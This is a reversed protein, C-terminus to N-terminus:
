LIQISLSELGDMFEDKLLQNIMRQGQARSMEKLKSASIIINYRSDQKGDESDDNSNLSMYSENRVILHTPRLSKRLEYEIRDKRSDKSM